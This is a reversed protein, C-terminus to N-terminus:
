LNEDLFKTIEEITQIKNLNKNFNQASKSHLTSSKVLVFDNEKKWVDLIATKSSISLLPEEEASSAFSLVQEAIFSEFNKDKIIDHLGDAIRKVNKM